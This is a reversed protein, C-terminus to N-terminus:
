PSAAGEFCVRMICTVAPSQLLRAACVAKRFTTREVSYQGGYQPAWKWVKEDKSWGHDGAGIYSRLRGSPERWMTRDFQVHETMKVRAITNQVKRMTTRPDWRKLRVESLNTETYTVVEVRPNKTEPADLNLSVSLLTIGLQGVEPQQTSVPM